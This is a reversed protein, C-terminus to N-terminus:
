VIRSYMFMDKGQPSFKRMLGEKELGVLEAWKGFSGNDVSVYTQVRNFGFERMANVVFSKAHRTYSIADHYDTSTIAFCQGVGEWMKVIGYVAMIEGDIEVTEAYTIQHLLETDTLFREGEKTDAIQAIDGNQYQRIM